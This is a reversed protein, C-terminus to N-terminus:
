QELYLIPPKRSKDHLGNISNKFYRKKWKLYTKRSIHYRNCINTVTDIDPDQIKKGLTKAGAKIKDDLGIDEETEININKNNKM